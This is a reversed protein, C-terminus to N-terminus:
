VHARGIQGLGRLSVAFAQNAVRNRLVPASASMRSELWVTNGPVEVNILAADIIDGILTARQAVM